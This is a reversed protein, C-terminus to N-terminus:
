LIIPLALFTSSVFILFMIALLTLLFSTSINSLYIIMSSIFLYNKVKSIVLDKPKM